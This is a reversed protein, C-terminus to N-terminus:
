SGYEGGNMLLELNSLELIQEVSCLRSEIDSVLEIADNLISEAAEIKKAPKLNSIHQAANIKEKIAIIRKNL